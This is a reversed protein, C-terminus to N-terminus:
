RSPSELFEILGIERGIVFAVRRGGFAAAPVPDQLCIAGEARANEVAAVIDEVEFCLHSLGGGKKLFRSVPSFDESPQILELRPGHTDGWLQVQVRQIPDIVIPSLPRLTLQAAYSAGHRCIDDVVIGVHHLRM